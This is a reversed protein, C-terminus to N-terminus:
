YWLSVMANDSYGGIYTDACAVTLQNNEVYDTYATAVGDIVGSTDYNQKEYDFESEDVDGWYIYVSWDIERDSGDGEPTTINGIATFKDQPATAALTGRLSSNAAPIYVEDIARKTAKWAFYNAAAFTFFFLALNLACAGGVTLVGGISCSGALSNAFGAAIGAWVAAFVGNNVRREHKLYTSVGTPGRPAIDLDRTTTAFLWQQTLNIGHACSVQRENEESKSWM